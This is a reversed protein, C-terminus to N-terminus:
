LRITGDSMVWTIANYNPVEIKYLAGKPADNDMPPILRSIEVYVDKGLLKIDVVGGDFLEVELKGDKTTIRQSM